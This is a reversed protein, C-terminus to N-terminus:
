NLVLTCSNRFSSAHRRAELEIEYPKGREISIQDSREEVLKNNLYNSWSVHVFAETNVHLLTFRVKSLADSGTHSPMTFEQSENEHLTIGRPSFYEAYTALDLLEKCSVFVLVSNSDRLNISTTFSPFALTLVLIAKVFCSFNKMLEEEQIYYVRILFNPKDSSTDSFYNAGTMFM